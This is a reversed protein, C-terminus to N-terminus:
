ADDESGMVVDYQAVTWLVDGMATHRAYDAPDVGLAVSLVDSKWPREPLENRAALYGQALTPVDIPHYHWGPEIGNRQLLLAIREMDFAPNSAHVVAGDVFSAIIEAAKTEPMADDRKFRDRYDAKFWDPYDPDDLWKAPDHQIRLEVKTDCSFSGNVERRLAAFEWIPATPDLGLTECDLFVLDTM